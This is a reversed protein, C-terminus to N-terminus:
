AERGPEFRAGPLIREAVGERCRVHDRQESPPGAEAKKGARQEATALAESDLRLAGAIRRLLRRGREDGPRRHDALRVERNAAGGPPHDVLTDARYEHSQVASPEPDDGVPVQARAHDGVPERAVRGHALRHGGRDDPDICLLGPGIHHQGHEIVVDPM